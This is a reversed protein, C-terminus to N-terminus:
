LIELTNETLAFQQERLALVQEEWYRSTNFWPFNHPFAPDTWRKALWASYNLMRLTRLSEILRLERLNFDHFERYGELIESLQQTQETRDGSLLMWLDQIAPGMLADDFDVFHAQEDRWLINGPHCDGHLRINKYNSVDSFIQNVQLLIDRTLTEYAERLHQPIFDHTLLYDVSAEGFNKTNLNIRHEFPQTAGLAHIRGLCRGIILLNDLNDLPPAHGGQRPFIAFRFGDYEHLSRAQLILPPVVPLEHEKLEACWVHEELIQADSWREPRYFKAIIPQSDEIGMQYVRNEYSNLALIRLDAILGLSEIAAIVTDPNLRSYPHQSENSNM